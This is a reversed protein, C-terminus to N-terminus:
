CHQLSESCERCSLKQSEVALGELPPEHSSASKGTLSSSCLQCAADAAPADTPIQTAAAVGPYPARRLATPGRRPPRPASDQVDLKSSRTQYCGLSSPRGPHM